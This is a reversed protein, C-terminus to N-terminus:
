PVAVVVESSAAEGGANVAKVRYTYSTAATVGTDHYTVSDFPLEIVLTFEGGEVKNEIIYNDEDEAVDKWTLHVGGELISAKLDTTAAPPLVADSTSETETGGDTTSTAVDTTMVATSNESASGTGDDGCSTTSLALLLMITVHRHMPNRM